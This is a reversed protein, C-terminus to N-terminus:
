AHPALMLPLACVLALAVIIRQGRSIGMPRSRWIMPCALLAFAFLLNSLLDSGDVPRDQRLALAGLLCFFSGIWGILTM